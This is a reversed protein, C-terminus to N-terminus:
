PAIAPPLIRVRESDLRVSRGPADGWSIAVSVDYLATRASPHGLDGGPAPGAVPASALQVIRVHWHFGDGEDGQRDSPEPLPGVAALHSQARALAEQYRNSLKTSVVGNLAAGTLVALALSAIVFAVLVELLTFGDDTSHARSDCM